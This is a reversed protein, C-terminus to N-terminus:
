VGGHNEWVDFRGFEGNHSGGRVPSSGKEPGRGVTGEDVTPTGDTPERLNGVLVIRAPGPSRSKGM